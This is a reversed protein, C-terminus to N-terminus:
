QNNNAGFDYGYRRDRPLAIIVAPIEETRADAKLQGLVDWGTKGGPLIVDLTIVAPQRERALAVGQDGDGASIVNYGKSGLFREMLECIAPDDDIVLVTPHQHAIVPAIPDVAVPQVLEAQPLRAPILVTFKSGKGFESICSITGGMLGVLEKSIVLGLGTGSQNGQRESLKKFRVFLKDLEEPEIGRGTDAIEFRISKQGAMDLESDATLTVTGHDTFKCANSLLNVLVQRLRAPDQYLVGVTRGVNCELENDREQAQPTMAECVEKLFEATEFEGPELVVGGLILKQYNLIDTLLELFYKARSQVLSIDKRQSETLNPEEVFELRGFISFLLNRMEHSVEAIFYDKAKDRARLERIEDNLLATKTNLTKQLDQNWQRSFARADAVFIQGYPLAEAWTEFLDELFQAKTIECSSVETFTPYAKM